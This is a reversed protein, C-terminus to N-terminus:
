PKKGGATLQVLPGTPTRGAPLAESVDSILGLRVKEVPCYWYCRGCSVCGARDAQYDERRRRVSLYILKFGIVLGTWAGLLGGLTVFDNRRTLASQYLEDVSRPSGRFADSADTTTEAIGLEELRMQEALRSEPHWQALPVALTTGLWWFGAVLFPSAILAFGFQRKGRRRAGPTQAVTPPHIAGYPCADECLQCNICTGPPISLRWKSFCSLVRLIAGYPCLYRCYPRGVFVGIMLICSGFILMDTNGGLRFFAIFPDYRCIIFGTRTAAFILAAGLYIYAVLGLSHDLWRPVAVSRVAILEQMAGLPCVSACFTRGFFLTFVLPLIFFAVVALPVVYTPDFVALAVNQTAGIPCVCGQRWFGFWLLSAITLLLVNRRSRSVLTFYSALCLAAFLIAVDLVPGMEGQVEPITATPIPHDSFEPVPFMLDPTEAAMADGMWMLTAVSALAHCVGSISRRAFTAVNSRRNIANSTRRPTTRSSM